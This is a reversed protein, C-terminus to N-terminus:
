RPIRKMFVKEGNPNILFVDIWDGNQELLAPITSPMGDGSINVPGQPRSLPAPPALRQIIENALAVMMESADAQQAIKRKAVSFEESGDAHPIYRFSFQEDAALSAVAIAIGKAIRGASDFNLMPQPPPLPAPLPAPPLIQVPAFRHAEDRM